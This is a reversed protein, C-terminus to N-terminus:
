NCAHYKLTTGIMSPHTPGGGTATALNGLDTNSVPVATAAAAGGPGGNTGPAGVGDVGNIGSSGFVELTIAEAPFALASSLAVGLAVTALIRM